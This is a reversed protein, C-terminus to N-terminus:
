TAAQGSENAKIKKIEGWASKVWLFWVVILAPYALVVGANYYIADSLEFHHLHMIARTMGCSWCEFDFFLRSPCLIVGGEGDFFDSPLIWLVFPTLLLLVLWPWQVYKSKFM